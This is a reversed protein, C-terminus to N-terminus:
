KKEWTIKYGLLDAIDCVELYDFTGMKLRKSINQPTVDLREALKTINLGQEALKSKILFELEVKNM